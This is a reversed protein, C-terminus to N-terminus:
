SPTKNIKNENIENENIDLNNYKGRNMSAKIHEMLSRGETSDFARSDKLLILTKWKLYDEHKRTLMPYKDIFEIIKKSDRLVFRSVSRVSLAEELDFINFKPKLYGAEFFQKILSLVLVDHTNQAIELTPTTAIYTSGRSIRDAIGFQFSGEGDIFAQIWHPDLKIIKSNFLYNWKDIFSRRSNMNNIISEIKNIDLDNKDLMLAIKKLDLFNLHKSTILPYKDFHPIIINLIDTLKVVKFSKYGRNDIVVKGCNFYRSLDYLIGASDEKQDIKFTLNIKPKNIGKQINVSFSGEGDTIGTVWMPNLKLNIDGNSMDRKLSDIKILYDKITDKSLIPFISCNIILNFNTFSNIYELNDIEKLIFSNLFIFIFAIFLLMLNLFTKIITKTIM